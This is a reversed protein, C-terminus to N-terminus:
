DMAYRIIFKKRYQFSWIGDSARSRDILPNSKIMELVEVETSLDIRLESFADLFYPYFTNYQRRLGLTQSYTIYLFVFLDIGREIDVFTAKSIM